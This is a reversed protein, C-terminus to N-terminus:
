YEKIEFSNYICNRAEELSSLENNGIMQVMMNGIATAETPGAFVKRETYKATIQNLYEANSGGGVINIQGYHKGTIEEIEKITNNYCVALSNYIVSAVEFDTGPVQQNTEACYKKVEEIMSSPALFRSSNCDVISKINEKSAMECIHAYSYDNKFEKKASQIMWLGMINKLYRFRYEYGGENTFNLEKSRLSCDAKSSEIGMLSWTGSSIYLTDTRNSPVALVASATDHTACVVVKCNYGIEKQISENLDGLITGPMVIEGFIDRPYGLREILEYDWQKTTPSVLQTTTANTYETKKLGTLLYHFYDPVLLFSKAKELHASKKEKVAMLQYISNFIQKQIGTRSYLEEELIISYVKEDMGTTRSDRYGVTNGIVEDKEDLLVFDVAWTDIGVSVPIKNMAKCKKMGAIIEKFLTDLEWCLEEGKLKMGNEFRHIEELVMKGNEIHGLIHRGSSAGIDIALYYKNMNM